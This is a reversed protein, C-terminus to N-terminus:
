KADVELWFAEAEALAAQAWYETTKDRGIQGTIRRIFIEKALDIVRAEIAPKDNIPPELTATGGQERQKAM